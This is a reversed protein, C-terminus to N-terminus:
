CTEADTDHSVTSTSYPVNSSFFCLGMRDSDTQLDSTDASSNGSLQSESKCITSNYSSNISEEQSFNSSTESGRLWSASVEIGSSHSKESQRATRSPNSGTTSSRSESAQSPLGSCKASCTSHSSAHHSAFTSSSGGGLKEIIEVGDGTVHSEFGSLPDFAERSGNINYSSITSSCNDREVSTDPNKWGCPTPLSYDNSSSSVSMSKTYASSSSGDRSYKGSFLLPAFSTSYKMVEVGDGTVKSEFESLRSTSKKYSAIASSSHRRAVSTDPIKLVCPPGPSYDNSSVSISKIYAAAFSDDRSYNESLILPIRSTSYKASGPSQSQGNTSSSMSKRYANTYSDDTSSNPFISACGYPVLNELSTDSVSSETVEAMSYNSLDRSMDFSGSSSSSNSRTSCSKPSYSVRNTRDCLVSSARSCESDQCIEVGSNTMRPRLDRLFTSINSKTHVKSEETFTSSFDSRSSSTGSSMSSLTTRKAGAIGSLSSQKGLSTQLFEPNNSNVQSKISQLPRQSHGSSSPIDIEHKSTKAAASSDYRCLGSGAASGTVQISGQPNDKSSTPKMDNKIFSNKSSPAKSSDIKSLGSIVPHSDMLTEIEHSSLQCCDKSSLPELATISSSHLSSLSEIGTPFKHTPFDNCRVKSGSSQQSRSASSSRVVNNM